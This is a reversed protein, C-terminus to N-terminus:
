VPLRAIRHLKAFTRRAHRPKGAVRNLEKLALAPDAAFVEISAIFRDPHTKHADIAEDNCIQAIQVGEEPQVMGWPMGGNLTLVLMQVGRMDMWKIRRDMDYNVPDYPRKDGAALLAKM